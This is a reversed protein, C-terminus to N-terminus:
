AALAIRYTGAITASVTILGDSPWSVTIVGPTSEAQTTVTASLDANSKAVYGKWYNLDARHGGVAVSYVGRQEHTWSPLSVSSGAELTVETAVAAPFVPNEARFHHGSFEPSNICNIFRCNIFVAGALDDESFTVNAFTCGDFVIRSASTYSILGAAYDRISCYRLYVYGFNTQGILVGTYGPEAQATCGIVDARKGYDETYGFTGINNVVVTNVLVFHGGASGSDTIQAAATLQDGTMGFHIGGAGVPISFNSTLQDGISQIASGTKMTPAGTYVMFDRKNNDFVCGITTTLPANDHHIAGQSNSAGYEGQNDLFQGGISIFRGQNWVGRTQHGRYVVAIDTGIAQQTIGHGIGNGSLNVGILRANSRADEGEQWMCANGNPQTAFPLGILNLYAFVTDDAQDNDALDGSYIQGDRGVSKAYGQIFMCKESFDGVILPSKSYGNPFRYQFDVKINTAFSNICKEFCFSLVDGGSLFVDDIQFDQCYRLWIQGNNTTGSTSGGIGLADNILSLGSICGRELSDAFIHAGDAGPLDPSQTVVTAGAGQGRVIFDTVPTVPSSSRNRMWDVASWTGGPLQYKNGTVPVSGDLLNDAFTGNADYSPLPLGRDAGDIAHMVTEGNYLWVNRAGENQRLRLNELASWVATDGQAAIESLANPIGLFLTDAEARTMYDDGTFELTIDATSGVALKALIELSVAFGSAPAPKEQNAYNGTAYLTGDSAYIAIGRVTYGGSTAPIICQAIFESPDNDDVVLSSISDRFVENEFTTATPDPIFEVGGDCVAFDSLWVKEGAAHAAAELAAGADTILIYYDSM